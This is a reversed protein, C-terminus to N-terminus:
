EVLVVSMAAIAEGRGIFGLGESTTAKINVLGSDVQLTRALNLQMGIRYPALRPQEAILTADVNQLQYGSRRVLDLSQSLLQLSNIDKYKLDNDPFHMGIDGL